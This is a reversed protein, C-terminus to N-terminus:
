DFYDRLLEIFEPLELSANANTDYQRFLREVDEVTVRGVNNNAGYEHRGAYFSENARLGQLLEDPEISGSNDKDFIRFLQTLDDIAEQSLDKKPKAAIAANLALISYSIMDERVRANAKPFVAKLMEAMDLLGNGDHDMRHFLAEMADKMEEGQSKVLIDVFEKTEISGSRNTDIDLFLKCVELVSEKSYPGFTKQLLLTQDAAVQEKTTEPGANAQKDITIAPAKHRMQMDIHRTSESGRKKLVRPPKFVHPTEPTASENEDPEEILKEYRLMSPTAHLPRQATEISPVCIPAHKFTSADQIITEIQDVHQNKPLEPLHKPVSLEKRPGKHLAPLSKSVQLKSPKERVNRQRPVPKHTPKKTPEPGFKALLFASPTTDITELLLKPQRKGQLQKATRCTETYLHNYIMKQRNLSDIKWNDKDDYPAQSRQMSNLQPLTTLASKPEGADDLRDLVISSPPAAAENAHKVNFIKEMRTKYKAAEIEWAQERAIQIDPKKWTTEGRLQGFLRDKESPLVMSRQTDLAPMSTQKALSKMRSSSAKKLPKNPTATAQAEKQAKLTEWLTTAFATKRASVGETDVALHWFTDKDGCLIGLCDGTYSWVKTSKDYSCTFICRPDEVFCLHRIGMTHAKWEVVLELASEPVGHSAQNDSGLHSAQREHPRTADVRSSNKGERLIRRRPNYSENNIPLQDEPVAHIDVEDLVRNLNWCHLLGAHDGAFLLHQGRSIGDLLEDGGTEDYFSEIVCLPSLSHFTFLPQHQTHPRVSYMHVAGSEHGVVLLPFPDLFALCNVEGDGECPTHAQDLLFYVYDWVKVHGDSSGTAVLSLAHSYALCKIDSEHADSISRLLPNASRDDYVRLSKDWSATLVCGDEQCYRLCSVQSLHRNFTKILAGTAANCVFVEGGQNVVIFKRQSTDFDVHTIDTRSVNRYVHLLHGDIADWIQIEKDTTTLITFSTDNYLVANSAITKPKLRVRQIWKLRFGCALVTAANHFLTFSTPKWPYQENGFRFTQLCRDNEEVSILNKLNWWKFWGDEDVSLGQDFGQAIHMAVVPALHGCLRFIPAISLGSVDWGLMDMEFGASVFVTSSHRSLTRIGRKHGVRTSKCELTNPDWVKILSDMSCSILTEDNVLLLDQVIDTHLDLIDTCMITFQKNDKPTITFVQILNDVSVAFLKFAAPAWELVRIPHETPLLAIPSPIESTFMIACNWFSLKLDGASIALVDLKTLYKIVQVPSHESRVADQDRRYGPMYALPHIEHTMPLHSSANNPDDLSESSTESALIAAPDYVQLVPRSGEFVFLKRLEPIYQVHKPQRSTRDLYLVNEEYKMDRWPNDEMGSTMGADILATTFDEWVMTGQGNIVIHNFLEVLEYVLAVVTEDTWALRDLLVGVFADLNLGEHGFREFDRKIDSLAEVRLRMMIGLCSNSKRNIAAM